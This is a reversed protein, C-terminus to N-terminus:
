AIKGSVDATAARRTWGLVFPLVLAVLGLATWGAAIAWAAGVLVILPTLAVSATEVPAVPLYAIGFEELTRSELDPDVMRLLAISTPRARVPEHRAM